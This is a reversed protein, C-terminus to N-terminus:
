LSSLGCPSPLPGPACHWQPLLSNGGPYPPPPTLPPIHSTTPPPMEATLLLSLSTQSFSSPSLSSITLKSSCQTGCRPQWQQKWNAKPNQLQLCKYTVWKPCVSNWVSKSKTATGVSFSHVLPLQQTQVSPPTVNLTSAAPWEECVRAWRIVCFSPM